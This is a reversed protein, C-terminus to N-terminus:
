GPRGPGDVLSSLHGREDPSIGLLVQAQRNSALVEGESGLHLLAVPLSEFARAAVSAAPPEALGPVAYVERRGDQSSLIVPVVEIAGDAAMMRTRRGPVLPREPFAEALADVSRGLLRRMADNMSLVTDAHSVVMMPLGIRQGSNLAEDAEDLRWLVGGDLAHAVLRVPGRPTM